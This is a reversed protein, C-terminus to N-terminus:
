RCTESKSGSLRNGTVAAIVNWTSQVQEKADSWVSMCHVSVVQQNPLELPRRALFEQHERGTDARQAPFQPAMCSDACRMPM